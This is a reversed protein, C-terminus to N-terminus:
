ITSRARKKRAASKRAVASERAVARWAKYTKPVNMKKLRKWAALADKRSADKEAAHFEALFNVYRPQPIREFRELRNLAIFQDVLDGYTVPGRAVHAERWRNLRYWVGSKPKVGPRKQQAARVIFDKTVQNSTYNAIPLDLRLGKDLDRVGKKLPKSTTTKPLRGTALYAKIASELENKRMRHAAPLGLTRGFEVLDTAYWYGHEFAQLSM